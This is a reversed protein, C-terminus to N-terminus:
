KFKDKYWPYQSSLQARATGHLIHRVYSPAVNTQDAILGITYPKRKFYMDDIMENIKRVTQEDHTTLNSNEGTQQKRPPFPMYKASINKHRKGRYTDKVTDLSVGTIESIKRFTVEPQEIFYHCVQDIQEDTYVKSDSVRKPKPEKPPKPIKVPKEKKIRPTAPAAEKPAPLVKDVWELNKYWNCLNNGNIHNVVKYANPNPVYLTAVIPAAPKMITQGDTTQILLNVYGNKTIRKVPSGDPYTFEGTPSVLLHINDTDYHIPSKIKDNAFQVIHEDLWLRQKRTLLDAPSGMLELSFLNVDTAHIEDYDIM